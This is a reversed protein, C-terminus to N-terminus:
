EIGAGLKHSIFDVVTGVTLQRGLEILEEETASDPVVQENPLFRALEIMLTKVEGDNLTLDFEDELAVVMELIDLSDADLDEVLRADEVVESPTLELIEAVIESLRQSLEPRDVSGSRMRDVGEM